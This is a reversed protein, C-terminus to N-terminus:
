IEEAATTADKKAALQARLSRITEREDLQGAEATRLLEDYAWIIRMQRECHAEAKHRHQIPLHFGCVGGDDPLAM